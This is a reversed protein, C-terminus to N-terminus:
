HKTGKIHIQATYGDFFVSMTYNSHSMKATVGTQDKSLEVGHVTTTNFNMVTNGQQMVASSILLPLTLLKKTKQYIQPVTLTSSTM